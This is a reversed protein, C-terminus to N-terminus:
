NIAPNRLQFSNPSSNRPAHVPSIILHNFLHLLYFLYIYADRTHRILCAAFGTYCYNLERVYNSEERREVHSTVEHM